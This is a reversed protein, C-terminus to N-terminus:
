GVENASLESIAGASLIGIWAVIALLIQVPFLTRLLEGGHDPNRGINRILLQMSGFSVFVIVIASVAMSFSYHGLLEPGFARAILVVFGFNAFQAIFEGTGLIAVNGFVRREVNM